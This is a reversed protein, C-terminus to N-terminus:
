KSMKLLRSKAKDSNTNLVEDVETSRKELDQRNKHRKLKSELMKRQVLEADEPLGTDAEVAEPIALGVTVFIITETQGKVQHTWSFLYKGILPIDGLLPIKMTNDRDDTETLGGIAVTKGSELCFVTKITKKAVIPYTQGNPAVADKLVRTLEPEIKVTINSETNVTPTVTLKVGIQVPTGPNYTVVPAIGQQGPTVSSVFPREEQGIHIIAPEENAVMIKPNSVVSVGNMQKLASLMLQFDQAGLVATRVDSVGKTFSDAVDSTIDKGKNIIDDVQRVPKRVTTVQQIADGGPNQLFSITDVRDEYQLGDLGYLKQLTDINSRKDWQSVADKQSQDWKRSENYDLKLNGASVNYGQLVQWNIGLDKIAEDNLEMFKAEIFVQERMTDIGKLTEKIESMQASTARVVLANRSAFTSVSGPAPAMSKVVSEVNSVSAYKLFMTEVVLPEPAGPTKPVISFVNSNPTKEIIQLNHMDLISTLATKWEVDALNVTVKGVLNSPNVIINAKSLRTFMRIVDAMDVDDLAISLTENTSMQAIAGKIEKEKQEPLAVFETEPPKAPQNTVVVVPAPAKGAPAPSTEVKPAAPPKTAPTTAPETVKAVETTKPATSEIVVMSPPTEVISTSVVKAPPSAPEVAPVPVLEVAPATQVQAAPKAAEGGAPPAAPKEQANILYVLGVVITMAVIYLRNRM